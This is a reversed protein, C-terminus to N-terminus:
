NRNRTMCRMLAVAFILIVIAIIPMITCIFAKRWFIMEGELKKCDLLTLERRFRGNELVTQNDEKKKSIGISNFLTLYVLVEWLCM